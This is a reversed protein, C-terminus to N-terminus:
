VYVKKMREERKEFINKIRLPLENFVNGPYINVYKALDIKELAGSYRNYVIGYRDIWFGSLFLQFGENERQLCISGKKLKLILGNGDNDNYVSFFEKPTIYSFFYRFGYSEIIRDFIQFAPTYISSDNVFIASEDDKLIEDVCLIETEM